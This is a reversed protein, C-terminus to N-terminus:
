FGTIYGSESSLIHQERHLISFRHTLKSRSLSRTSGKPSEGGESPQPTPLNVENDGLAAEPLAESVEMEEDQSAGHSQQGRITFTSGVPEDRDYPPSPPYACPMRAPSATKCLNDAAVPLATPARIGATRWSLESSADFLPENEKDGSVPAFDSMVEDWPISTSPGTGDVTIDVRAIAALDEGETRVPADVMDDMDEHDGLESEVAAAAAIESQLSSTQFIPMPRKGERRMKISGVNLTDEVEDPLVEEIRRLRALVDPMKPREDPSFRCCEIALDVFAPPCGPSARRRVIDSDPIFLPAKRSYVKSGVLIRTLIEIFIIGLSYVDTPLDFPEGMIIEPSMYGKTTLVM